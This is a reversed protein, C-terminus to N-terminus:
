DALLSLCEDVLISLALIAAADALLIFNPIFDNELDIIGGTQTISQQDEKM